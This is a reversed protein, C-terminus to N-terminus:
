SLKLDMWSLNQNRLSHMVPFSWPFVITTVPAARPSPARNQWAMASAPPVMRASPRSSAANAAIIASKDPVPWSRIRALTALISATASPSALRWNSPSTFLAPIATVAANCALASSSTLRTMSVFKRPLRQVNCAATGTSFAAPPPTISLIADTSPWRGNGCVPM